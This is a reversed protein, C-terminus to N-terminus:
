GTLAGNSGSLLDNSGSGGRLGRCGVEVPCVLANCGAERYKAALDSYEFLKKEEAGEFGAEWPITLEFPIM